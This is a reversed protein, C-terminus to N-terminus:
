QSNIQQNVIPPQLVLIGHVWIQWTMVKEKKTQYMRMLLHTHTHQALNVNYM